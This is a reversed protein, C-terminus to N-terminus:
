VIATGQKLDWRVLKGDGAASYAEGDRGDNIFRFDRIGGSHVDKLTALVKSEKPSYIQIESLNTGYALVIDQSPPPGNPQSSRKRKKKKPQQEEHSASGGAYYGWDLCTVSARSILGHECLLRGTTVDHIRLCQSDLGQIVSAFFPSGLRFPAFSSKLIASNHATRTTSSAAPNATSSVNSSVNKPAKQKGM